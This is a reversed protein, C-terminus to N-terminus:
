LQRRSASAPLRANTKRIEREVTTVEGDWVVSSQYPALIDNLRRLRELARGMRETQIALQPDDTLLRQRVLELTQVPTNALDRLAMAVRAVRELALKESREHELEGRLMYGRQKFALVVLAFMGYAIVGFPEGAAMRARLAEALMLHHILASGVFVSIAVTGVRWGPPAIMALTLASLKIPEYPVWYPSHAARADDILWTMVVTPVLVLLFIANSRSRAFPPLRAYLWWLAGGNILFTLTQLSRLSLDSIRWFGVVSIASGLVGLLASAVAARHAEAAHDM